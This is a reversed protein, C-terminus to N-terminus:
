YLWIVMARYDISAVELPYPAGRLDPSLKIDFQLECDRDPDDEDRGGTAFEILEQLRM